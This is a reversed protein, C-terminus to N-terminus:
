SAKAQTLNYIIGNSFPNVMELTFETTYVGAQADRGVQEIDEHFTKDLYMVDLSATDVAVAMKAWDANTNLLPHEILTFNGRTTQLNTFRQGFSNESQVMQYQGNLKGIQNITKLATKGVYLMHESKTAGNVKYDVLPDLMAELEEFSTGASDAVHLNQPALDAVIQEIGACTTLPAGDDATTIGKRGFLIIEEIAAGHFFMADRKNEAPAGDGARMKIRSLTRSNGWTNRVIQTQNVYRDPLVSVPKPAMSGQGHANGIATLKDNVEVALPTTAGFGRVVTITNAGRNVERVYMHEIAITTGTVKQLRLIMNPVIFDLNDSTNTIVNSIALTTAAANAATSVNIRPFKSKKTWWGHEIAAISRTKALGSLGFIQAKGAPDVRILSASFSEEALNAPINGSHFFEM